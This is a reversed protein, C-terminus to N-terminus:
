REYFFNNKGEDYLKIIQRINIILKNKQNKM